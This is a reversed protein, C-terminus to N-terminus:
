RANQLVTQNPCNADIVKGWDRVLIEENIFIEPTEGLNTFIEIGDKVYIVGIEQGIFKEMYAKAQKPKLIKIGCLKFQQENIVLDGKDTVESVIELKTSLDLQCGTILILIVLLINRM